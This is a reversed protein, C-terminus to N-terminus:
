LVFCLLLWVGFYQFVPPLLADFPKLLLAMVPISDTLAISTGVPYGLNVTAGPPLTWPSTRFLHWGTFHFSPDVGGNFLWGFASPSLITFGTAMGFVGAGVCAAVLLPAMLSRRSHDTMSHLDYGHATPPM